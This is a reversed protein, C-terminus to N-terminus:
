AENMKSQQEAMLKHLKGMEGVLKEKEKSADAKRTLAPQLVEADKTNNDAKLTELERAKVSAAEHSKKAEDLATSADKDSKAKSEKVKKLEELEKNVEDLEVKIGASRKTEGEGEVHQQIFSDLLGSLMALEADLKKEEASLRSMEQNKSDLESQLTSEKSLNSSRLNIQEQAKEAIARAFGGSNGRSRGIAEKVRGNRRVEGEREIKKKEMEGAVKSNQQNLRELDVQIRNTEEDLNSLASKANVLEEELAAINMQKSKLMQKQKRVFPVNEEGDEDESVVSFGSLVARIGSEVDERWGRAVDGMMVNSDVVDGGGRKLESMERKAREM